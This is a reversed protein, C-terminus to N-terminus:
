RCINLMRQCLHTASRFSCTQYVVFGFHILSNHTHLLLLSFRKCRMHDSHKIEHWISVISIHILQPYSRYRVSSDAFCCCMYPYVSFVILLQILVMPFFVISICKTKPIIVFTCALNVSYEKTQIIQLSFKMFRLCKEGNVHHHYHHYYYYYYHHIKYM